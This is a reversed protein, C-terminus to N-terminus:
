RLYNGIIKALPFVYLGLSILLLIVGGIILYARTKKSSIKELPPPALEKISNYLNYYTALVEKETVREKSPLYIIKTLETAVHLKMETLAEAREIIKSPIESIAM